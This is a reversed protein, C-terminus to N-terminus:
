RVCVSVTMADEFRELLDDVPEMGVAVRILHRPVGCKAAWDLEEYHALLTYPCALTFNTGLSPGKSVRLADYFAQAAPEGEKLVISLLGGYGGQPRRVHDYADTTENNPYYCREVAPHSSLWAALASSNQNIIEMREPFHASNELLADIDGAFLPASRDMELFAQLRKAFPSSSSVWVSGAMVDGKGSINKTLSTTVLDAYPYVDVNHITGVTDDVILPVRAARCAESVAPLDVTRTLPNCPIEAFVARIRGGALHSQLDDLLTDGLLLHAGSGLHKQICFVDVYPFELQLSEGPPQDALAARYAAHVAAMGSAYLHGHAAPQNSWSALREKLLSESQPEHSDPAEQLLAEAHRSSVMEGTYRWYRLATRRHESPFILVTAHSHPWPHMRTALSSNGCSSRLFAAARQCADDSAFVLASEGRKAFRCSAEDFLRRVTPHCFFRPYGCQLARHVVPDEEEYGIVSQWTPMAVSVAHPADPIPHGLDTVQWLPNTLLDRMRRLGYSPKAM